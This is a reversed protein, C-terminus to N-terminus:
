KKKPVRRNGHLCQTRFVKDVAHLDYTAKLFPKPAPADLKAGVEETFLEGKSVLASSLHNFALLCHGRKLSERARSTYERVMKAAHKASRAHTKIPSGLRSM